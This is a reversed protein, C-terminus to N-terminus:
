RKGEIEVIQDGALLEVNNALNNEVKSVLLVVVKNTITYDGVFGGNYVYVAPTLNNNKRM